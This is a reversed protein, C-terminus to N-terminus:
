YLKYILYLNIMVFLLLLKYDCVRFFCFNLVFFATFVVMMFSVIIPALLRQRKNNNDKGEKKRYLIFIIEKMEKIEEM